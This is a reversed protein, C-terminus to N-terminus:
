SVDFKNSKRRNESAPIVRLNFECHLGCVRRNIIPVIHDVDHPVGTEKEILARSRYVAIVASQNAWAPTALRLQIIRREKSNRCAAVEAALMAKMEPNRWPNRDVAAQVHAEILYLAQERWGSGHVRADEGISRGIKEFFVSIAKGTTAEYWFRFEDSNVKELVANLKESFRADRLEKKDNEKKALYSDHKARIAVAEERALYGNERKKLYRKKPDAIPKKVEVLHPREDPLCASCVFRGAVKGGGIIPSRKGCARCRRHTNDFSHPIV